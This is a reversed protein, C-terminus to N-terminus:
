EAEKREGRSLRLDSIIDADHGQAIGDGAIWNTGEGVEVM